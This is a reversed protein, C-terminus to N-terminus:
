SDYFYKILKKNLFFFFLPKIVSSCYLLLNGPLKVYDRGLEIPAWASTIVGEFCIRAIEKLIDCKIKKLVLLEQKEM